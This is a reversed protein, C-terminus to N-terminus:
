TLRQEYIENLCSQNTPQLDSPYYKLGMTQYDALKQSKAIGEKVVYEDPMSSSGIITVSWGHRGMYDGAHIPKDAAIGVHQGVESQFSHFAALLAHPGTTRGPYMSGTDKAALVRQLAHHITYFLFPHKPASAIFFSSMMNYRDVLFLAQRHQLLTVNFLSAPAVDINAYVGGYEYLVLYRWLDSEVAGKGVCQLVHGLLPFEKWQKSLLRGMAAQDHFLYSWEETLLEKWEMALGHFSPTLCRSASSQHFIPPISGVPSKGNYLSLDDVRELGEGCDYTAGTLSYLPLRRQSSSSKYQKLAQHVASTQQTQRKPTEIHGIGLMRELVFIIWPLWVLLRPALKRGM